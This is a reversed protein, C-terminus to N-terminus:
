QAKTLIHNYTVMSDLMEPFYKIVSKEGLRLIGSINDSKDGTLIKLTLVNYHPFESDGFKVKDGVKFTVKSIPSYISTHEDIQKRLTNIFHFVGGIHNGEVFLDRVGHFGIKFLNDGDVLLTKM